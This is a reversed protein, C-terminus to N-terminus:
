TITVDAAEKVIVQAHHVCVVRQVNEIGDSWFASALNFLNHRRCSNLWDRLGLLGVERLVFVIPDLLRLLTTISM